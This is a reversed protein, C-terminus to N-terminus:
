VTKSVIEAHAEGVLLRGAYIACYKYLHPAKLVSPIVIGGYISVCILWQGINDWSEHICVNPNAWVIACHDSLEIIYLPCMPLIREFNPPEIHAYM